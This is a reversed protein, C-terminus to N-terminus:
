GKKAIEAESKKFYNPSFLENEKLPNLKLMNISKIFQTASNLNYNYYDIFNLDLSVENSNSIYLYEDNLTNSDFENEFIFIKPEKINNFDFKAIIHFGKKIRVINYFGKYKQSYNKKIFFLPVFVSSMKYRDISNKGFSLGQMYAFSIRLGTFSGPGDVVGIKKIENLDKKITNLAYNLIQTLFSSHSNFNNFDVSYIIEGNDEISLAGKKGSTDVAIFM